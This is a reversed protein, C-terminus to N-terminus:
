PVCSLSDRVVIPAILQASPWRLGHVDGLQGGFQRRDGAVVVLRSRTIEELPPETALGDGVHAPVVGPVHDGPTRPRFGPGVRGLQCQHAVVVDDLRVGPLDTAMRVVRGLVDDFATVSSQVSSSGSVHLARQRGHREGKAVGLWGTRQREGAEDALLDATLAGTVRDLGAERGVVRDDALTRRVVGARVDGVHGDGVLATPRAGDDRGASRGVRTFRVGALVGDVPRDVRDVPESGDIRRGDVNRTVAELSAEDDGLDLASGAPVDDRIPTRQGDVLPRNGAFPRGELRDGAVDVTAPEIERIRDVADTARYIANVGAEPESAHAASGSAVVTSARRGKHAVAVDTVDRASYNTSGEGVVAHDPAFGEDIARRAGEGGVEEGVFSAFTLDAVPVADRFALAMAALAGKMDATGRGFLRGGRSEVVYETPYDVDGRVQAADPSVVDHHGVLALEGTEPGPRRAIVNGAVDRRVTADTEARLWRELADGAATEDAHSPIAVLERTLEAVGM